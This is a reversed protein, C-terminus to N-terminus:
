ECILVIQNHTSVKPMDVHTWLQIDVLYQNDHDSLFANMSVRNERGESLYRLVGPESDSPQVKKFPVDVYISAHSGDPRKQFELSAPSSLNLQIRDGVAPSEKAGPLSNFNGTVWTVKCTVPIDAEAALSVPAAAFNPLLLIIVFSTIPIKM